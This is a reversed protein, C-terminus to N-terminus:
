DLITGAGQNGGKGLDRGDAGIEGFDLGARDVALGPLVNKIHISLNVGGFLARACELREAGM